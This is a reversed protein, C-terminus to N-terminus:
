ACCNDGYYAYAAVRLSTQPESEVKFTLEAPRTNDALQWQSVIAEDAASRYQATVAAEPRRADRKSQPAASDHHNLSSPPRCPARSSPSSHVHHSPAM